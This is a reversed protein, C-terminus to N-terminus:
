AVWRPSLRTLILLNRPPRHPSVNDTPSIVKPPKRDANPDEDDLGSLFEAVARRAHAHRGISKTRRRATIAAPPSIFLAFLRAVLWILKKSKVMDMMQRSREDEGLCMSSEPLDIQAQM